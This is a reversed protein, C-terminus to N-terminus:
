DKKTLLRTKIEALSGAVALKDTGMLLNNIKNEQGCDFESVYEYAQALSEEEIIKDKINALINATNESDIACFQKNIRKISTAIKYRTKLITLEEQWSTVQTKLDKIKSEFQNTLLEQQNVSEAIRTAQIYSQNRKIILESALKDAEQENVMKEQAKELIAAAQREYNMAQKYKEQLERKLINLVARIKVLNKLSIELEKKLNKINQEALKIPDEIKDLISDTEAGVIKFFRKFLNFM